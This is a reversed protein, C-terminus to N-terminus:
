FVFKYKSSDGYDKDDEIKQIDVSSISIGDVEHVEKLPNNKEKLSNNSVNKEFSPIAMIGIELFLFAVIVPSTNDFIFEKSRVKSGLSNGIADMVNIPDVLLQYKGNLGEPSNVKVEM